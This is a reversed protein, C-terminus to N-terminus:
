QIVFQPLYVKLPVGPGIVPATLRAIRVKLSDRAGPLTLSDLPLRSLLDVVLDRLEVQHESLTKQAKEDPVEYAVTAMVFRTGMSGAPNVILNELQFVRGAKGAADAQPADAESAAAPASGTHILKPGVVLLGGAMGLGIGALGALLAIPKKKKTAAPADGSEPEAAAASEDHEAM